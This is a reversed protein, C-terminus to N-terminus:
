RWYQWCCGDPLENRNYDSPVSDLKRLCSGIIAENGILQIWIKSFQEDQKCNQFCKVLADKPWVSSNSVWMNKPSISSIRCTSTTATPKSMITSSSTSSTKSGTRLSSPLFAPLWSWSSSWVWSCLFSPLASVRLFLCVIQLYTAEILCEPHAEFIINCCLVLVILASQFGSVM